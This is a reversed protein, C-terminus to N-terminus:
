KEDEKAKEIVELRRKKILELKQEKQVRKIMEETVEEEGDPLPEMMRELDEKVPALNYDKPKDKSQDGLFKNIADVDKQNTPM